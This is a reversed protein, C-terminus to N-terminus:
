DLVSGLEARIKMFEYDSKAKDKLKPDLAIAKSLHMSAQSANKSRAAAIARLYHALASDKDPSCDLTQEAGSYNGALLKALAANFSCASGYANVAATYKGNAVSLNGLNYQAETTSGANSFYNAAAKKDGKVAAIVGLNNQISSEKPAVIAAKEFEAQAENFKGQQYYICGMNNFGRFDEPYRRAFANYIKMKDENRTFFDAAYLLEEMGLSDPSTLALAKIQDDSRVKIKARLSIEARRLKPFYEQYIPDYSALERFQQERAEPDNVTNIISLAADKGTISSSSLMKSLGAWDEYDTAVKKTFGEKSEYGKLKKSKFRDMILKIGEDARNASLKENRDLEGEPSAYGYVELQTFESGDRVAKDIFRTMNISEDSKLEIDRVEWSDVLFYLNQRQTVTPNKDFIDEALSIKYEKQLLLPTVVTGEAIVVEPLATTKNKYVATARLVLEAQEMGPQYLFRDTLTFKGGKVYSINQDGGSIKDGSLTYEKLVKEGGSYKVVPTVNVRAKKHFYKEPFTGNVTVKVSDGHLEMPNPNVTYAVQDANKIMKGIGCGSLMIATLAISAVGAFYSFKTKM